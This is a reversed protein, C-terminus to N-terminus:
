IFQFSYLDADSLRVRLRVPRGAWRGLGTKSGRWAVLHAIENGYLVEADDFAFGELAAGTEDCVEVMIAGAASTAYNIELRDGSFVLPRTLMEGLQDGGVHVSVFGDTRLTGRRIRKRPHKNHENWYISIEGPSLQVMGWAPYNNRDTWVEPETAPRVFGELWRHFNEGDRSSMFLGDSVGSNPHEPDKRRAPMFRAPTGIYLHPARHYPRIANTYMHYSREDSYQIFRAESWHEFDDSVCTMIDRVGGFTEGEPKDRFARYYCVYHEKLPDWFALNHSDFAGKTIIRDPAMLSWHIGDPSAFAALGHGEPHYAVAKYRQDDPASPNPDKFPSFNHSSTGHWIINNKTSGQFEVLGLEPRTFHIGDDSEMLCTFQQKSEDAVKAPRGSYYLRIKGEDEFFTPYGTNGEWPKGEEGFVAVIERRVPQHLRLGIEGALDDILFDDVFLERRSGIEVSEKRGPGAQIANENWVPDYVPRDLISRFDGDRLERPGGLALVASGKGATYRVALVNRGAKVSVQALNNIISPPYRGDDIAGKDFVPAGNIWAQLRCDAGFGLTVEGAEVAEMEVFVYAAQNFCHPPIGLVERCDLQDVWPTMEKGDLTSEGIRIQAPVAQLEEEGLLPADHPIPGFVTWTKGFALDGIINM